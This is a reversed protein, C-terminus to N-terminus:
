LVVGTGAQVLPIKGTDYMAVTEVKFGFSGPMKTPVAIAEAKTSTASPGFATPPRVGGGEAGKTASRISVKVSM